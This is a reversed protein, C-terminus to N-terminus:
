LVEEAVVLCGERRRVLVVTGTLLGAAGAEFRLLGIYPGFRLGEAALDHVHVAVCKKM